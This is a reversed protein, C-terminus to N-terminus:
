CNAEIAKAEVLKEKNKDYVFDVRGIINKSPHFSYAFKGDKYTYSLSLKVENAYRKVSKKYKRELRLRYSDLCIEPQIDRLKRVIDDFTDTIEVDMLYRRLKYQFFVKEDTYDLPNVKVVLFDGSSFTVDHTRKVYIHDGNSIGCPYMSFGCVEYEELGQVREMDNATLSLPIFKGDIDFAPDGAVVLHKNSVPIQEELEYGYVFRDVLKSLVSKKM